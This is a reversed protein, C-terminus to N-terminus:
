NGQRNRQARESRVLLIRFQIFMCIVAVAIVGLFIPWAFEAPILGLPKGSGPFLEAFAIGILIIAVLDVALLAPPFLGATNNQSRTSM